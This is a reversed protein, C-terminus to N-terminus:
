FASRRPNLFASCKEWLFWVCLLIVVVLSSEGVWWVAEDSVSVHPASQLRMSGKARTEESNSGTILPLWWTTCVDGSSIGRYSCHQGKPWVSTNTLKTTTSMEAHIYVHFRRHYVQFTYSKIQWNHRLLAAPFFSYSIWIKTWPLYTDYCM